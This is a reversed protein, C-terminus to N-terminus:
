FFRYYILFLNFKKYFTYFSDRLGTSKITKISLNDLSAIYYTLVNSAKFKFLRINVFAWLNIRSLISPTDKVNYWYIFLHKFM